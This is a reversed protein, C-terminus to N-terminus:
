HVEKSKYQPKGGQNSWFLKINEDDLRDTRLPRLYAEAVTGGSVYGVDRTPDRLWRLRIALRGKRWTSLIGREIQPMRRRRHLRNAHEDILYRQKTVEAVSYGNENTHVKKRAM